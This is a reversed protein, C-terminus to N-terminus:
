AILFYGFSFGLFSWVLCINVNQGDQPLCIYLPKEVARMVPTVSHVLSDPDNTVVSLISGLDLNRYALSASMVTGTVLKPIGHFPVLEVLGRENEDPLM